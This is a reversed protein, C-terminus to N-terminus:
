SPVFDDAILHYMWYDRFEIALSVVFWPEVASRRPNVRIQLCFVPDPVKNVPDPFKNSTLIPTKGKDTEEM